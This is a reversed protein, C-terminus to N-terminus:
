VHTLPLYISTKEESTKRDGAPNTDCIAWSNGMGKGKKSHKVILGHLMSCRLEYRSKDQKGLKNVNITTQKWLKENM